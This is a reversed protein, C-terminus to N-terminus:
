SALMNPSRREVNMARIIPEYAEEATVKGPMLTVLMWEPMRALIHM